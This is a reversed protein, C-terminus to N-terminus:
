FLPEAGASSHAPTKSASNGASLSSFQTPVYQKRFVEFIAASQAPNALLGNRPDIRVTVIGPPEEMSHEATGKLAQGMYQIWIPLAAQAGYEYLSRMNDYGVWVTTEIDSNFGSFWADVQKNTTGTKGAIDNRKLVLAARGTGQKIVGQMAQTMLYANQATIVRPAQPSVQVANDTGTTVASTSDVHQEAANIKPAANTSCNVCAQPANAQWTKNADSNVIRSILYPKVAYGGNAFVVYGAAIQLPSLAASGLALSLSHPLEAPDFGFRAAYQLAYPIGITQLLRISVLNRSKTLGVLLRTPGYFKLTDNQPRWLTNEGSDRIVIPADNIMTALTLGKALAASYIFPKFNSGPQRRAQVVRNFRSLRYDFGGSLALVAGDNPRVSVIAGQVQPVQTLRWSGSHDQVVRIVDGLQVIDGAHQPAAGLYPGKLDPRAWSLGSWPITIINGNALLANVSQAGLSVVAAPLLQHIVPMEQLAQQWAAQNDASPTGLNQASKRYGHRKDYAMLGNDLAQNAANQLKGVVTTYVQFGSNYAEEKGYTQVMYDRVMEAVYPASLQIKQGHYKATIPQQLAAQYTAQDIYHNDLLRSLVHDRRDLAATPNNIPNDRSPSQPLGALMAMQALTLQNLPKGYYVQAAAAVGYARKGFYVKNLYLELIKDKSFEQDIKLALLMEKIKRTYTKKRTLFFNRAVQMTITSAGQVKRGTAIVAVAARVIGIVDVGPHDYFRQDETAIVAHVMQPPIQQLTVPIRRKSGFEAILQDDASYIRLPVQLHVDKLSNVNPLQLLMFFYLGGLVVIATFMLSFVAWLGHNAFRRFIKM